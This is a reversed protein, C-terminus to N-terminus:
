YNALLVAGLAAVDDQDNRDDNDCNCICIPSFPACGHLAEFWDQDRDLIQKIEFDLEPNLSEGNSLYIAM